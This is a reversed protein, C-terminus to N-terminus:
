LFVSTIVDLLDICNKIFFFKLVRFVFLPLFSRFSEWMSEQLYINGSFLPITINDCLLFHNPYGVSFMTLQDSSGFWAKKSIHNHKINVFPGVSFVELTSVPFPAFSIFLERRNLVTETKWCLHFIKFAGCSKIIQSFGKGGVRCFSRYLLM